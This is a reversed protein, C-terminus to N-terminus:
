AEVNNKGKRGKIALPATLSAHLGQSPLSSAKCLRSQWTESERAEQNSVNQDGGM